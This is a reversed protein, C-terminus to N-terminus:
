QGGFISAEQQSQSHWTTQPIKTGRGPILGTDEAASAQFGLWQVALSNGSAKQICLMTELFSDLFGITGFIYM